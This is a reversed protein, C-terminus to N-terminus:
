EEWHLEAHCNACLLDCKDLEQMIRAWSWGFMTAIQYEKEAPDRHHFTLAAICKDYGCKQCKDGKYAIAARKREHRAAKIQLANKKRYKPNYEKMYARIRAQRAPNRAVCRVTAEVQRRRREKLTEPTLDIRRRSLLCWVALLPVTNM